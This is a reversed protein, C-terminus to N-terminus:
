NSQQMRHYADEEINGIYNCVDKESITIGSSNKNIREILGSGIL